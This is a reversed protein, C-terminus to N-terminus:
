RIDELGAGECVYEPHVERYSPLQRQGGLLCHADINGHECPEVPVLVGHELLSKVTLNKETWDVGIRYLREGM